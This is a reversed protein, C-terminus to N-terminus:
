NCWLGLERAAYTGPSPGLESPAERGAWAQTDPEPPKAQAM